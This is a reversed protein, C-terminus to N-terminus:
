RPRDPPNAEDCPLELRNRLEDRFGSWRGFCRAVLGLLSAIKRPGDAGLAVTCCQAAVRIGAEATRIQSNDRGIRGLSESLQQSGPNCDAPSVNAHHARLCFVIQRLERIRLNRGKVAIQM